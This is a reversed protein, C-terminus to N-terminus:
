PAATGVGGEGPGRRLRRRRVLEQEFEAARKRDRRALVVFLVALVLGMGAILWPIRTLVVSPEPVHRAFSRLVFV